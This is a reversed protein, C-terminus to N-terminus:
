ALLSRLEELLVEGLPGDVEVAVPREGTLLALQWLDTRGPPQYLRARYDAADEGVRPALHSFYKAEPDIKM